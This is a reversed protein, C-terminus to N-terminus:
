QKVKCLAIVTNSLFPFKNVSFGKEFNRLFKDPVVREVFQDIKSFKTTFPVLDFGYEIFELDCINTIFNQFHAHDWGCTHGENATYPKGRAVIMSTSQINPVALILYKRSIKELTKVLESPNRLHELVHICSVVDFSKEKYLTPLNTENALTAHTIKSCLNVCEPDFDVGECKYKNDKLLQLFEGRGSGFDLINTSSREEETIHKNLLNICAIKWQQEYIFWKNNQIIYPIHVSTM